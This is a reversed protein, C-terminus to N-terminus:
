PMEFFVRKSHSHNRESGSGDCCRIDRWSFPGPPPLGKRIQEETFATQPALDPPVSDCPPAPEALGEDLMRVQAVSVLPVAMIREVCWGLVYHFWVPLPFMLPRRGVVRAVRRVVQRLTLQEPGLM